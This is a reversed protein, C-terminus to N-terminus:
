PPLLVWVGLATPYPVSLITTGVLTPAGGNEETFTVLSGGTAPVTADAGTNKTLVYFTSFEQPRLLAVAPGPITQTAPSTAVLAGSSGIQFSSLTGSETDVGM